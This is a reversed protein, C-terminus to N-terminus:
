APPTTKFLAVLGSVVMQAALSGVILGMLRNFIRLGNVGLKRKIYPMRQLIIFYALVCIIIALGGAAYDQWGEAEASLTFLTTTLGAGVTVPIAVPVISVDDRDQAAEAERQSHNVRKGHGQVMNIAMILLIIGGFVKLGLPSIGFFQFIYTGLGFIILMAILVAKSARQATSRVEERSADEDLLSLMIVGVALPNMITFISITDGLLAKLFEIM